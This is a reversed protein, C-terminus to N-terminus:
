GPGNNKGDRGDHHPACLRESPVNSQHHYMSKDRTLCIVRTKPPSIMLTARQIM